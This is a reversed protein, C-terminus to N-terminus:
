ASGQVFPAEGGTLTEEPTIVCLAQAEVCWLFAPASGSAGSPLPEVLSARSTSQMGLTQWKALQAPLTHPLATQQSVSSVCV